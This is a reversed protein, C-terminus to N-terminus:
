RHCCTLNLCRFKTIFLQPWISKDVYHIHLPRVTQTQFAKRYCLDRPPFSPSLQLFFIKPELVWFFFFIFIVINNVYRYVDFHIVCFLKSITKKCFYNQINCSEHTMVHAQLPRETNNPSTIGCNACTACNTNNSPKILIEYLLM